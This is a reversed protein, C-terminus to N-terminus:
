PVHSLIGILLLLINGIDQMNCSLLILKVFASLTFDGQMM